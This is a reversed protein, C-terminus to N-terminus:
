GYQTKEGWYMRAPSGSGVWGQNAGRALKWVVLTDKDRLVDLAIKLGYITASKKKRGNLHNNIQANSGGQGSGMFDGTGHRVSM